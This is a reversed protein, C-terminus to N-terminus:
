KPKSEKPDPGTGIYCNSLLELRNCWGPHDASCRWYSGEVCGNKVERIKFWRGGTKVVDGPKM